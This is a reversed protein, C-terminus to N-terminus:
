YTVDTKAFKNILNLSNAISKVEAKSAVEGSNCTQEKKLHKDKMLLNVM